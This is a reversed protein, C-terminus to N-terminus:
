HSLSDTSCSELESLLTQVKLNQVEIHWLLDVSGIDDNM